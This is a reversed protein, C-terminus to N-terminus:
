GALRIGLLDFDFIHESKSPVATFAANPLVGSKDFGGFKISSKGNYDIFVSAMEHDIKGSERLYHLMNMEDDRDIGLGIIGEAKKSNRTQLRVRKSARLRVRIAFIGAQSLLTEKDHYKLILFDKVEKGKVYPNVLFKNEDIENNVKTIDTM